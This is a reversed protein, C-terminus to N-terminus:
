PFGNAAAPGARRAAVADRLARPLDPAAPPPTAGDAGIHAVAAQTRAASADGLVVVATARTAPEARLREILRQGVRPALARDLLVADPRWAWAIRAADRVETCVRLEMAGDAALAARVPEVLSARAAVLLVRVDGAPMDAAGARDDPDLHSM